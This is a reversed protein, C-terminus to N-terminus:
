GNRRHNSNSDQSIHHSAQTTARTTLLPSSRRQPRPLEWTLIGQDILCRHHHLSTASLPQRQQTSMNYSLLSM